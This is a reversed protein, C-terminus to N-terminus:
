VLSKTIDELTELGVLPMAGSKVAYNLAETDVLNHKPNILVFVMKGIAACCDLVDYVFTDNKYFETVIVAQSMAALLRNSSEINEVEFETDETFESILGGNQM